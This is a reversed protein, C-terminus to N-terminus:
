VFLDGAEAGAEDKKKQGHCKSSSVKRGPLSRGPNPDEQM